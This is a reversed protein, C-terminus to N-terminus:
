SVTVKGTMSNHIACLYDFTGAQAFVQEFTAGAAIDGSDFSKDKATVTHDFGDRNTFTVTAGVEVALDGPQFAFEKIEVATAGENAEAPAPDATPEGDDGCGGLLLTAGLAATAALRHLATTRTM